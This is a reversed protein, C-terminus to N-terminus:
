SRTFKWLHLWSKRQPACREEFFNVVKKNTTARLPRDLIVLHVELDRGGLLFTRFNVRAKGLPANPTSPHM